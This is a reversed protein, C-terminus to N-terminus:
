DGSGSNGDTYEGETFTPVGDEIIVYGKKVTGGFITDFTLTSDVSNLDNGSIVCDARWAKFAKHEAGTDLPEQFFALLIESKAQSGTALTFFKNFVFDYDAEGKYMTLPTSFSPAYRILETTPNEDAIYDYEETQPNLNLDFATSKCIRTWTPNTKDVLGDTGVKSNLFPAIKHKKVMESM